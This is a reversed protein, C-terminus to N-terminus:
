LQDYSFRAIKLTKIENEETKFTRFKRTLKALEYVSVAMIFACCVVCVSSPPITFAM